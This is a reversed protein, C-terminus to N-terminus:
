WRHFLVSSNQLQEQRLIRYQLITQLNLLSQSSPGSLSRPHINNYNSYYVSIYTMDIHATQEQWGWSGQMIWRLYASCRAPATDDRFHIIRFKRFQYCCLCAVALHKFISWKEFNIWFFASVIQLLTNLTHDCHQCEILMRLM